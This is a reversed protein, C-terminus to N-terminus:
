NVNDVKPIPNEQPPQEAVKVYNLLWQYALSYQFVEKAGNLTVKQDSLLKLLFKAKDVDTM